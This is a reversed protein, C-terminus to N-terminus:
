QHDITQGRGVRSMRDEREGSDDKLLSMQRQDTRHLTGHEGPYYIGKPIDSVPISSSVKMQVQMETDGDKLMGVEIKITVSGKKGTHQVAAVLKELQGTAVDNAAGNRMTAILHSATQVTDGNTNDPYAM